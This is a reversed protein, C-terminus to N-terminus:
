FVTIKSKEFIVKKPQKRPNQLHFWFEFVLKLICKVMIFARGTFFIILFTNQSFWIKVLNLRIIIFTNHLEPLPWALIPLPHDNFPGLPGSLDKLKSSTVSFKSPWRLTVLPWRLTLIPWRLSVIPWRLIVKPLRLTVNPWRLTVIPWRLTVLHWELTM